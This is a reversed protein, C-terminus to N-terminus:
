VLANKGTAVNEVNVVKNVINGKFALRGALTRCSIDETLCAAMFIYFGLSDVSNAVNNRLFHINFVLIVNLEEESDTLGIFICFDDNFIVALFYEAALLRSKSGALHFVNNNFIVNEFAKFM